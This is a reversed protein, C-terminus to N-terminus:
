LKKQTLVRYLFFAFMFCCVKPLIHAAQQSSQLFTLLPKLEKTLEKLLGDAAKRAAKCAQVDGTRSLERLSTDLKDHIKLCRSIINQVQQVAAQVQFLTFAM